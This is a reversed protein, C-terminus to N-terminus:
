CDVELLAKVFQEMFKQEATTVRLCKGFHGIGDYTKILIRKEDMMESVLQDADKYKTKVFIFNGEEAHVEYGNKRLEEVVYKKGQLQKDIIEDLLGEKEIVRQAILMAFANTNHPTCLKSVLKVDAPQGVVYGLRCGGMSFLKSFTRTVLVHPMKLAYEIFTNNYFYMYAEDILVTIENESAARMIKEFEENTYANGVPNNPNLLILLEVSPNLEAIIQEASITLDDKYHVQIFERGYMEAYVQYMAYSPVVGVIKGKPSTFAEIIHRIGESSGNVLCLNDEGVKLFNALCQTFEQTEPYQSVFEPTVEELVSKIFEEPLGGPNENLDLRLYAKRNNQYAIRELNILEPNVYYM